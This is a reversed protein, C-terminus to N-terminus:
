KGLVVRYVQIAVPGMLVVFMCPFIFLVLPFILKTAIKAAIEEARQYRATRFSDSYVRLAQAVSTGFRDTQILMTVLSKVDEIGTRDALSRLAQQRAKGARLELNVIKLEESLEPHTLGVEEGVKQIAADLGMGAEVCVVLLDLADPFGRVIRKLRGSTRVSLWLDPLVLGLMALFCAILLMHSSSLTKLFAVATLVFAAPLAAALILKTGWFVFPVSRGRLGARQFKLKLQSKDASKNPNTRVGIAHLLKVLSSTPKGSLDLSPVATETAAWENEEKAIKRIMARHHSRQRTYTMIGTALLCIVVFASIALLLPVNADSLLM